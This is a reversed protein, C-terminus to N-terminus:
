GHAVVLGVAELARVLKYQDHGYNARRACPVCSELVYPPDGQHAAGYFRVKPGTLREGPRYLRSMFFRECSCCRWPNRPRKVVKASILM